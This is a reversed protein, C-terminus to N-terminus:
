DDPHPLPATMLMDTATKGLRNALVIMAPVQPEGIAAAAAYTGDDGDEGTASAAGVRTELRRQPTEIVYTAFLMWAQPDQDGPGTLICHHGAGGAVALREFYVVAMGPEAAACAQADSFVPTWGDRRELVEADTVSTEFNFGISFSSEGEEPLDPFAAQFVPAFLPGLDPVTIDLGEALSTLAATLENVLRTVEAQDAAYPDGANQAFAPTTAMALGMGAALAAMATSFRM